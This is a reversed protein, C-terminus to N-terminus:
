RSLCPFINIFLLIDALSHTVMILRKKASYKMPEAGYDKMNEVSANRSGSNRGPTTNDKESQSELKLYEDVSWLKSFIHCLSM